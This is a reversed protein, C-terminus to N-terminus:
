ATTKCFFMPRRVNEQSRWRMLAALVARPHLQEGDSTAEIMRLKRLASQNQGEDALFEITMAAPSPDLADYKQMITDAMRLAANAGDRDGRRAALDAKLRWMHASIANEGESRRGGASRDGIGHCSRHGASFLAEYYALHKRAAGLGHQDILDSSAFLDYTRGAFDYGTEFDGRRKALTQLRITLGASERLNWM